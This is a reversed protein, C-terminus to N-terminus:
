PVYCHVSVVLFFVTYDQLFLQYLVLLGGSGSIMMVKDANNLKIVLFSPLHGCSLHQSVYHTLLEWELDVFCQEGIQIKAVCM